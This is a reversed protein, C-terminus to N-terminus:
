TKEYVDPTRVVKTLYKPGTSYIFTRLGPHCKHKFACYRCPTPLQMNGSKGDPIPDYGRVPPEDSDLLGRVEDIESAWDREKDVKYKDVIITGLEKDVAVFAHEGKVEVLPDDKSAASYMNLQTLYGFPDDTELRHEKFKEFSRSNASKVDVLVGDIIGDRHGKIGHLDLTDQKGEVKHGAEEALFLVIHELLDGYLFKFRAKGDLPEADAPSRIKYWLQRKCKSGFNSIRLEPKQNGNTLRETILEALSDGLAKVRSPDIKANGDLYTYIDKVLTTLSKTTTPVSQTM